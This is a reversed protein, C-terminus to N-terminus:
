IGEGGEVKALEGILDDQLLSLIDNRLEQYKKDHVLYNRKRPRDFPVELIRRVKGPGPTFIVIRDALYIAEDIDHTVLFVTKKGGGEQWLRLLLDQLYIRNKADVAGFPEDMLYVPAGLAFARAIAVRQKMGGSLEGPYKHAADAVGVLKLYDLAQKKGAAGARKLAFKINDLATMWPFLSYDQFVVARDPGPGHIPKGDLLVTGSSPEILGALLAITSSKGCGSPGVVAIFEGEQITLSVNDLAPRNSERSYSLSIGELTLLAM